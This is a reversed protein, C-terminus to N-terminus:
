PKLRRSLGFLVRLLVSIVLVVGVVLGVGFAALLEVVGFLM